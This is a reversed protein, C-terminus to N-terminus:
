SRIRFLLSFTIFFMSKILYIFGVNYRFSYKIFRKFHSWETRWSITGSSRNITFSCAITSKWYNLNINGFSFHQILLDPVFYNNNLLSVRRSISTDYGHFGDLSEDFKVNSFKCKEIALFVGDLLYVKKVKKDGSSMIRKQNDYLGGAILNFHRYRKELIWWGSPSLPLYSSGAIGLLGPNELTYFYHILLHGWNATHFVVDEHVFVLFDYSAQIAGKNYAKAIPLKERQNEIRIIEYAVGITKALSESFRNFLNEDLSCVIVSIM